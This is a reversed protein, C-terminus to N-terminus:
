FNLEIESKLEEYSYIFSYKDNIISTCERYDINSGKLAAIDDSIKTRFKVKLRGIVSGCYSKLDNDQADEFFEKAVKALEIDSFADTVNLIAYKMDNPLFRLHFEHLMLKLDNTLAEIKKKGIIRTVIILRAIDGDKNHDKLIKRFYNIIKIDHGFNELHSLCFLGFEDYSQSLAILENIVLEQEFSSISTVAAERVLKSEDTKIAMLLANLTTDSYEYLGLIKAYNIRETESSGKFLGRIIINPEKDFYNKIFGAIEISIEKKSFQKFDNSKIDKSFKLAIFFEMFSKHAFYYDGENNRILFTCTRIETDLEKLSEQSSNPILKLIINSFENHKIALINKNFMELALEEMFSQKQEPLLHSRYDQSQIWKDTYVQYLKGQNVSEKISEVTESIMNAFLPTKALEELNYTEKIIEMSETFGSPNYKKVYDKIEQAGWDLIYLRLLKLHNEEEVQTKFFHTRCTLIIKANYQKTFNSLFHINRNIDLRNMKSAMEDFGDLILMTKGHRLWNTLGEMTVSEINEMKMYQLLDNELNSFDQLDRLSILFPLYSYDPNDLWRSALLFAYHKCLSSKGTGFNGLVAIGGKDTGNFFKDFFKEVPKYITGKKDEQTQCSLEIYVQSLIESQYNEIIKKVIGTPDFSMKQLEKLTMIKINYEAGITEFKIDFEYDLIILNDYQKDLTKSIKDSWFSMDKILAETLPKNRTCCEVLFRKEYLLNKMEAYIDVQRNGIFINEQTLFGINNLAIITKKRFKTLTYHSIIGRSWLDNNEHFTKNKIKLTEDVAFISSVPIARGGIDSFVDRSSKIYGCVKGTRQNLIPSGSMGPELQSNKFKLLIKRTGSPGEYSLLASDGEKYESTYGYTYVNDGVEIEEDLLVCPHDIKDKLSLVCLDPYDVETINVIFASYQVGKWTIQVAKDKNEGDIVHSCTLIIGPSIFFGTGVSNDSEVKVICDRFISYLDESIKNIM